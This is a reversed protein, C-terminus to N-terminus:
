ETNVHVLVRDASQGQSGHSTVAYGYDLRLGRSRFLGWLGWWISAVALKVLQSLKSHCAIGSSQSLVHSPLRNLLPVRFSGFSRCRLNQWASREPQSGATEAWRPGGNALAALYKPVNRSGVGRRRLRFGNSHFGKQLGRLAGWKCRDKWKEVIWEFALYTVTSL